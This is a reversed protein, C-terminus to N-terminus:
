ISKIWKKTLNKKLSFHELFWKLTTGSTMASASNFWMESIAALLSATDGCGVLVPTGKKLGLEGAISLSPHPDPLKEPPIGAFDVLEEIWKKKTVNFAM